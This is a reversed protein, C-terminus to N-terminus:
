MFVVYSVGAWNLSYDIKLGKTKWSSDAGDSVALGLRMWLLKMCERKGGVKNKNRRLRIVLYDVERQGGLFLTGRPM